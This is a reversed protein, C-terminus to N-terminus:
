EIGVFELKQYRSNYDFIGEIEDGFNLNLETKDICTLVDASGDQIFTSIKYSNGKTSVKAESSLYKVISYMKVFDGGLCCYCM